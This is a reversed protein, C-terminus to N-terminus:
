DTCPDGWTEVARTGEHDLAGAECAPIWLETVVPRPAPGIEAARRFHPLAAAPDDKLTALMVGLNQFADGWANELEFRAEEDLDPNAGQEEGMAVCRLLLEEAFDLDRRLYYVLVLATDNVVRVNTPALRAAEKYAAYSKEMRARAEDALENARTRLRASGDGGEALGAAERLAALEAGSVEGRAAACLRRALAEMEVSADRQFFGANNAWMWNDPELARCEEFSDAARAWDGNQNHSDGVFALGRVGSLLQDEIQWLIGNELVDNMSRFADAAGDFDGAHYRVWGIGNRCMVEYSKSASEWAPDTARARVLREEAAAFAGEDGSGALLAELAQTFHALGAAHHGGAVDPHRIRFRELTEITATAGGHEWAVDRLLGLLAADDPNRDLGREVASLADGTRQEWRYLNALTSWVWPDATARGLMRQLADETELFLEATLEANADEANKGSRYAAFAAEALTKEPSLFLEREGEEEALLRSAGRAWRLADDVRGLMFAARSAGLLNEPSAGARQFSALADNFAGEVHIGGAGQAILADALALSGRARLALLERDSDDIALAKDLWLLADQPVGAELQARGQEVYDLFLLRDLLERARELDGREVAEVVAEPSPEDPTTHGPAGGAASPLLALFLLPAAAGRLSVPM